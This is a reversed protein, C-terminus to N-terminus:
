STLASMVSMLPSVLLLLVETATAYWAKCTFMIAASLIGTSLKLFIFILLVLIFPKNSFAM